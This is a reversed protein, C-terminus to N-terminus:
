GGGVFHVIEIRGGSALPTKPWEARAVIAGNYEVAIRDGRLHLAAILEELRPNDSLSFERSQGNIWFQM